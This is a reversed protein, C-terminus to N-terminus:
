SCAAIAPHAAAAAAADAEEDLEDYIFEFLSKKNLLITKSIALGAQSAKGYALTITTFKLYTKLKSEIAESIKTYLNATIYIM